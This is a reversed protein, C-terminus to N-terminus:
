ALLHSLLVKAGIAILILGAFIEVKREFFHGGRDGIWVGVFSMGFTVAGIVLIPTVVSVRLVAFSVGAAFADISTAVSLLLLTRTRLPDTREEVERIQFSEYLMKCGVGGLLFFVIWHDIEEIFPSVQLGGVWGLLPMIAQFAGFWLAVLFAHRLRFHLIAIGTAIAVAFADMALAVAILLITVLDM